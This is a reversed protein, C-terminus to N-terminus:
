EVPPFVYVQNTINEEFGHVDTCVGHVYTHVRTSVEATDTCVGCVHTCVNTSVEATDTSMREFSKAVDTEALDADMQEMLAKMEELGEGEESWDDSDDSSSAGGDSDESSLQCKQAVPEVKLMSAIAALCSDPDFTVPTEMSPDNGSRTFLVSSSILIETM